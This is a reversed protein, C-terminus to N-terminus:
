LWDAMQLYCTVDYVRRKERQEEYHDLKNHHAHKHKIRM